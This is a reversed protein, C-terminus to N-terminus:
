GRALAFILIAVSLFLLAYARVLAAFVSGAALFVAVIGQRAEVETLLQRCLAMPRGVFTRFLSHMLRDLEHLAVLYILRPFVRKERLDRMAFTRILAVM